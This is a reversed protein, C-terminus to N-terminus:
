LKKGVTENKAGHIKFKLGTLKIFGTADKQDYGGEIDMSSLEKNYLSYDSKRGTIIINGKYLTLFVKGSVTEQSKNISAMLFEMEPSYWFGNYILKALIPSLLEKLHIVERDLTISELDHHAKLLVTGAPTEYVGRSKIGVFRDEVIDIRGIGNEASIENLYTFLELPGKVEKGETFNTIKVPLGKNYEIVINTEKDVANKPSKTLKFMDEKPKCSADELIGSEYSIHMLNEDMSYPKKLTVDIPINYKKAYSILDLRGKFESLWDEEKWPSIIQVDPLFKMWIFEFRVQDNGKGTCGHALINTKEKIAIEVQKKAIVPRAIATGLLYQGEYVANAKLMEFIYNEVLEKKLDEIYVKSAGTELAKQKMKEFDEKQGVDAIYAIVDYGKNSLWKLMVSTDLGGSYALIVKQKM